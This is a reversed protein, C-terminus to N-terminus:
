AAAYHKVRPDVSKGPTFVPSIINRSIEPIESKVRLISFNDLYLSIHWRAAYGPYKPWFDDFFIPEPPTYSFILM